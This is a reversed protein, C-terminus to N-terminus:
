LRARNIEGQIVQFGDVGFQDIQEVAEGPFLPRASENVGIAVLFRGQLLVGASIGPVTVVVQGM